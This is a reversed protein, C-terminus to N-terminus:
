RVLIAATQYTLSAPAGNVVSVKGGRYLSNADLAISHAYAASLAPISASGSTGSNVVTACPGIASGAISCSAFERVYVGGSKLEAVHSATRLPQQPVLQTEPYIAHGDAQNIMMGFASYSPDYALLWAAYAYMRKAPDSASGTPLCLATKHHSQVAILADVERQFKSSNDSYLYNGDNNFCGEFMQGMVAPLDLFAGDYAPGWTNPDGGNLMVPKGAAALMASEAAIYDADTKFEVGTANFGYYFMSGFVGDPGTLSSGADDAQYGDLLPSAANLPAVTQAYARQVAPNAVNLVEQYQFHSDVFRHVRAGTADHVFAGEDSAVLNGIPGTCRGAPATFPAPCYPVYTPDTYAMAYKGGARKFSDAHQATFGDDDVMDVHAAMYSAPVDSNIDNLGYFAFNRVHDPAQGAPPPAPRPQVALVPSQAAVGGANASVRVASLNASGNYALIVPSGPALLSTASLSAAGTTDDISLAIPTAYPEPGIITFGAADQASVTVPITAPTGATVSTAGLAIVAKAVIGSFSVKVSNQQGPVVTATTSGTSLLHGTAGAADYLGIDFTVSGPDVSLMISCTSACDATQRSGAYSVAISKTGASVYRPRRGHASATSGSPIVISLAVSAPSSGTPRGAPTVGSGVPPLASASGGGGGGCAALALVSLCLSVRWAFTRAEM